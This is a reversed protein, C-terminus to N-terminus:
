QVNLLIVLIHCLCATLVTLFIVGISKCSVPNDCFKLKNFFFFLLIQLTCYLILCAQITCYKLESLECLNLSDLYLSMGSIFVIQIEHDHLLSVHNNCYAVEGVELGVFEV